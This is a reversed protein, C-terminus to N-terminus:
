PSDFGINGTIIVLCGSRALSIPITHLSVVLASLGLRTTIVTAQKSRRNIPIPDLKIKTGAKIPNM